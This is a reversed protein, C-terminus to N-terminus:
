SQTLSHELSLTGDSLSYKDDVGPRGESLMLINGSNPTYLSIISCGYYTVRIVIGSKIYSNFFEGELLTSLPM